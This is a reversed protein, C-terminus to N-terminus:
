TNGGLLKSKIDEIESVIPKGAKVMRSIKRLAYLSSSHDARGFCRAIFGHSRKTLKQSLYMGVHRAQVEDPTRVESVIDHITVNFHEAVVRQIMKISVKDPEPFEDEIWFWPKAGTVDLM